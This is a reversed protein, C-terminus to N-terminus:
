LFLVFTRIFTSSHAKVVVVVVVVVIIIIIVAVVVGRDLRSQERHMVAETWQGM